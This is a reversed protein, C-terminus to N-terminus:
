LNKVGQQTPPAESVSLRQPSLIFVGPSINRVLTALQMDIARLSGRSPCHSRIGRFGCDATGRGLPSVPPVRARLGNRALWRAEPPAIAACMARRQGGGWVCVGAQCRAHVEFSAPDAPARTCLRWLGRSRWGEGERRTEEVERLLSFVRAHAAAAADGAESRAARAAAGAALAVARASALAGLAADTRRREGQFRPRLAFFLVHRPSLSTPFPLFPPPTLHPRPFRSGFPPFVIKTTKWPGWLALDRWPLITDDPVLITESSM